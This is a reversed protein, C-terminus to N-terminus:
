GFLRGLLVKLTSLTWSHVPQLDELLRATRVPQTYKWLCLMIDLEAATLREQTNNNLSLREKRVSTSAKM